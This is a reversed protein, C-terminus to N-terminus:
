LKIESNNLWKVIIYEFIDFFTYQDSNSLTNCSENYKKFFDQLEENMKKLLINNLNPLGVSWEKTYEQLLFFNEFIQRDIRLWNKWIEHFINKIDQKSNPKQMTINYM